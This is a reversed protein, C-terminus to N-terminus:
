THESARVPEITNNKVFFIPYMHQTTTHWARIEDNGSWVEINHDSDVETQKGQTPSTDSAETDSCADATSDTAAEYESGSKNVLVAASVRNRRMRAAHQKRSLRGM